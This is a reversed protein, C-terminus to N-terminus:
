ESSDGARKALSREANHATRRAFSELEMACHLYARRADPSITSDEDGDAIWRFLRSLAGLSDPSQFPSSGDGIIREYIAAWEPTKLYERLVASDDARAM